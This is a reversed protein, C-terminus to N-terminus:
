ASFKRRRTYEHMVLRQVEALQAVTIVWSM